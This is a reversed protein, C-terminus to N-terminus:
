ITKSNISLKITLGIHTETEWLGSIRIYLRIKNNKIDNVYITNNHLITNYLSLMIQKNIHVNLRQIIEEEVQKIKLLFEDTYNLSLKYKDTETDFTVLSYNMDLYLLLSNLTFIKTNYIIKYFQTYNSFKNPIPKHFTIKNTELENLPYYINM